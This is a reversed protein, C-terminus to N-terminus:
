LRWRLPPLLRALRLLLLSQQPQPLLPHHARKPDPNGPAPLALDKEMAARVSVRRSSESVALTLILLIALPLLM